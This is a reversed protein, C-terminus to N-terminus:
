QFMAFRKDIMHWPIPPQFTQKKGIFNILRQLIDDNSAELIDAGSATEKKLLL